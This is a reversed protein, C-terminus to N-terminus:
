PVARRDHLRLAGRVIRYVVWIWLMLLAFAGLTALGAALFVSHWDLEILAAVNDWNGQAARLADLVQGMIPSAGSAMVGLSAVCGGLWWWFTTILWRYHTDIVGMNPEGRKAYGMVVALLAPWWLFVAAAFLAYCVWATAFERQSPVSDITIEHAPMHHIRTHPRFTKSLEPIEDSVLANREVWM